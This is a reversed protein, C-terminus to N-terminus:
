ICAYVCTELSLRQQKTMVSDMIVTLIYQENVLDTHLGKIIETGNEM